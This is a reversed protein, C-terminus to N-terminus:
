HLLTELGLDVWAQISHKDLGPDIGKWSGNREHFRVIEAIMRKFEDATDATKICTDGEAFSVTKFQTPHAWNGYYSADDATDIQAWGKLSPCLKFDFAYRNEASAEECTGYGYREIKISM